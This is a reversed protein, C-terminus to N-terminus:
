DNHPISFWFTAGHQLEGEAWVKGGFRQVIRKVTSLGIGIGEFQENSHLRQFIGFLKNVHDQSFGVGNDKVFFDVSHDTVVAGIEITPKKTKSSYKAANSLLNFWVQHLLVADCDVSPLPDIKWEIHQVENGESLDQILQRVMSEVNVHTISLEQRGIRSLALLGNILLDMKKTSSRIVSVFRVAEEDFTKEYQEALLATFSNIARLPARLDHSVSYSFAELEDYAEQLAATRVKVRQELTNNIVALEEEQQKRETIDRGVGVIGHVKGSSDILPSLSTQFYQRRDGQQVSWEYEVSEGDLARRNADIHVRAAEPGHIDEASRGIFMERSLNKKELWRGFVGTHRQHNDLTFVIDEMSSVLSRFMTESEALHKETEERREIEKQLTRNREKLEETKKAVEEELQVHYLATLREAEKRDTIDEVVIKFHEAQGHKDLLANIRFLFIRATNQAGSLIIECSETQSTRYLMKLKRLFEAHSAKAIYLLLFTGKLQLSNKGFLTAAFSNSESIKGDRSLTIYGIPANDYIEYFRRYSEELRHQSAILEDQQIELEVQYVELEHLLTEIENQLHKGDDTNRELLIKRALLHLRQMDGRSFKRKVNQIAETIKKKSIKPPEIKVISGTRKKKVAM